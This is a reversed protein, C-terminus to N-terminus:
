QNDTTQSITNVRKDVTVHVYMRRVNDNMNIPILKIEPHANAFVFFIQHAFGQGVFDVGDFDLEVESFQELRSCVRKAQSRSVPDGEFINKLPILTKILGNDADAYENFVDNIDKKSINSLSMYVCTSFVYEKKISDIAEEQFKNFTYMKHNSCIFFDDMIRSTFFIGEGSHCSSDTTLKGKSLEIVADDLSDYDFHEQIKRFVGIGNDMIYVITNLANKEILIWINDAESHELANNVMETFAYNWISKVNHPLDIIKPALTNGFISEERPKKAASIPITSFSRETKLSYKDKGNKVIVGDEILKKLYNHVTSTSIKFADSVYKSLGDCKEDIKLLIYQNISKKQEETFKM